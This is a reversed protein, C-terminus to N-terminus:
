HINMKELRDLGITWNTRAGYAYLDNLTAALIEPGQNSVYIYHKYLALATKADEISDHMDDQVVMKLLYAALFRLSIKRQGPLRWLEVTDRIQELPVVVNTTEFDKKLGHGIFICGNDILYRLKLYATRQTIISHRSLTPNLDEPSVGSFRTVYDLVPETPLVYDDALITFKENTNNNSENSLNHLDENIYVLSMRALVQRGDEIDSKLGQSDLIVKQIEITVFEGDFAIYEQSKPLKDSQFEISPFSSISKLRYVIPPIKINLQSNSIAKFNYNEKNYYLICPIKWENFTIVDDLSINCTKMDNILIWGPHQQQLQQNETTNNTSLINNRKIELVLHKQISM